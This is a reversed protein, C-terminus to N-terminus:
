FLTYDMVEREDNFFQYGSTQFIGAKGGEKDFLIKDYYDFSEKCWESFIFNRWFGKSIILWM